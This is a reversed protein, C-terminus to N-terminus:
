RELYFQIMWWTYFCLTVPNSHYGSWVEELFSIPNSLLTTPVSLILQFWRTCSKWLQELLWGSSFAYLSTVVGYIYVWMGERSPGQLRKLWVELICCRACIRSITPVWACSAWSGTICACTCWDLQRASWSISSDWFIRWNTDRDRWTWDLFLFFVM